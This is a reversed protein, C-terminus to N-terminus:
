SYPFGLISFSIDRRVNSHPTANILAPIEAAAVGAIAAVPTFIKFFPLTSTVKFDFLANLLTPPTTRTSPTFPWDIANTRVVAAFVPYVAMLKDQV